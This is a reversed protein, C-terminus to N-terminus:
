LYKEELADIIIKHDEVDHLGSVTIIAIMGAGKVFIPISGGKLAYDKDSLGFTKELSLNEKEFDNKVILSSDEFRKVVNAKRRLWDMKDMPLNDDVYLFVPYNWRIVQVAINQKRSKALEVVRLAMDKATANSFSQLEIRNVKEYDIKSQAFLSTSATLLLILFLHRFKM